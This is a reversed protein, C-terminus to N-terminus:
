NLTFRLSSFVRVLRGIHIFGSSAKRRRKCSPNWEFCVSVLTSAFAPKMRELPPMECALSTTGADTDIDALYDETSSEKEVARVLVIERREGGYLLQVEWIIQRRQTDPVQGM